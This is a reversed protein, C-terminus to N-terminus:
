ASDIGPADATEQLEALVEALARRWSPQRIDYDRAIRGCDLVSNLPRRAATIYEAATIPVLKAPRRAGEFIVGAFDYWTTPEASAFHFVGWNKRGQGIAGAVSLITDAIDRAGTPAGHQDFVIRLEPHETSLRLMTRVFNSGHASFVWSTRLIVHKELAQSIGTEGEAKTRGYVSLPAKSDDEVYAGPKSGDFVYDTSLHILAAGLEECAEAMAVPADRNVKGAVEPEAEARDVATFAAANIVLDPM